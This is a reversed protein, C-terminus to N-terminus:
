WNLSIMSTLPHLYRSSNVPLAQSRGDLEALEMRLKKDQDGSLCDIEAIGRRNTAQQLYRSASSGKELAMKTKRLRQPM